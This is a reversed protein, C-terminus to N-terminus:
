AEAEEAVSGASAPVIIRNGPTFTWSAYEVTGKLMFRGITNIAVDELAMISIATDVESIGTDLQYALGDSSKIYCVDLATIAEGAEAKVILGTAKIGNSNSINKDELYLRM